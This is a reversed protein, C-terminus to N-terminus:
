VFSESVNPLRFYHYLKLASTKVKTPNAEFTKNYFSKRKRLKNNRKAPEISTYLETYLPFM